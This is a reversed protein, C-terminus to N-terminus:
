PLLGFDIRCDKKQRGVRVGVDYNVV